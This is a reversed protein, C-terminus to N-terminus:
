HPHDGFCTTRCYSVWSSIYNSDCLTFFNFTTGKTPGEEMIRETIAEPKLPCLKQTENAIQRNFRSLTGFVLLCQFLTHVSFILRLKENLRRVPIMLHYLINQQIATRLCLKTDSGINSTFSLIYLCTCHLLPFSM